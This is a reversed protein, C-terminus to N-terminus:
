WQVALKCKFNFSHSILITFRWYTCVNASNDETGTIPTLTCTLVPFGREDLEEGWVTGRVANICCQMTSIFPNARIGATPQHLRFSFCRVMPRHRQLIGTAMAAPHVAWINWHEVQSSYFTQLWAPSRTSCRCHRLMEDIDHTTHFIQSQLKQQFTMITSQFLFCIVPSQSNSTIPHLHYRPNNTHITNDHSM